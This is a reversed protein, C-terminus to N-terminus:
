AEHMVLAWQGLAVRDIAIFIFGQALLDDAEAALLDLRVTFSPFLGAGERTLEVLFGTASAQEADGKGFVEAGALFANLDSRAPCDSPTEGVCVAM